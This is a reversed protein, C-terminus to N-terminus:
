NQLLILFGFVYIIRIININQHDIENHLSGYLINFLIM